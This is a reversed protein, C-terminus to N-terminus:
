TVINILLKFDYMILFHIIEGNLTWAGEEIIM